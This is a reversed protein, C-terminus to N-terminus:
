YVHLLKTWAQHDHGVQPAPMYDIHWRGLMSTCVVHNGLCIGFPPTAVSYTSQRQETEPWM